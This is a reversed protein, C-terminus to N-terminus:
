FWSQFFPDLETSDSNSPKNDASALTREIVVETKNSQTIAMGSQNLGVAVSFITMSSILYLILKYYIAVTQDVLGIFGFLLSIVLATEAGPLEFISVLTGTITTTASGAVGPAIVAKSNGFDSM